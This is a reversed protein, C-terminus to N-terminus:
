KVLGAKKGALYGARIKQYYKRHYERMKAVVEPKHRYERIKALSEPKRRYERHYERRKKEFAVLEKHTMESLKKKM